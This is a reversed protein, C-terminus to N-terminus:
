VALCAIASSRIIWLALKRKVQRPSVEHGKNIHARTSSHYTYKNWPDNNATSIWHITAAWNWFVIRSSAFLNYEGALVAYGGYRIRRAVKSAQEALRKQLGKRWVIAMSNVLSIFTEEAKQFLSLSTQSYKHNQTDHLGVDYYKWVKMVSIPWLMYFKQFSQCFEMICGPNAEERVTLNSDPLVGKLLIPSYIVGSTQMIRFGVEQIAKEATACWLSKCPSSKSHIRNSWKSIYSRLWCQPSSDLESARKVFYKMCKVIFVTSSASAAKWFLLLVLLLITPIKVDRHFM